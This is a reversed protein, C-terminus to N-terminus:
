AWAAPRAPSGPVRTAADGRAAALQPGTLFLARSLDAGRLDAGRLDAGTLDALSLDAGRLDVGLLLAGRLSAGRLDVARLDRGALDAGRHDPRHGASRARALESARVLLTNVAGRHTAVDVERLERDDSRSLAETAAWALELDPHVPAAAPLALAQALYWLLEQLPRVVHFAAFMAEAIDEDDRWDRGAFTEQTVKQGAGFCDYVTCGTFGVERLQPHIGCRSDRGLHPCPTGAPKDIAFDASARFGPAVCCLGVCRSCDAQLGLDRATEAM